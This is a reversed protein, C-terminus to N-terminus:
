GTLRYVNGSVNQSVTVDKRAQETNGLISLAQFTNGMEIRLFDRKSLIM